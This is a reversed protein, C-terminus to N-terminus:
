VPDPADAFAKSNADDFVEPKVTALFRVAAATVLGEFAALPLHAAVFVTIATFFVRDATLGVAVFLVLSMIVAGFGALFGTLAPRPMRAISCADASTRWRRVCWGALLAPIGLVVANVGITTVGGHGFLLAQMILGVFIPVMAAPGVVAGVLGSLLLHVSAAGLKVHILSAAFFASTMLALRPIDRDHIRRLSVITAAGAIIYGGACVSAPLLGDSIHM